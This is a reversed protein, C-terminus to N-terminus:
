FGARNVLLSVNSGTGGAGCGGVWYGLEACLPGASGAMVGCPGSALKSTVWGWGGTALLSWM